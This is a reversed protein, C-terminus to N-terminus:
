NRVLYCLYDHNRDPRVSLQEIIFGTEELVNNFEQPQYYNYFQGRDNTEEGDGRKMVIIGIANPSLKNKISALTPRMETKSIHLLSAIALLGDFKNEISFDRCDACVFNGEPLNTKAIKLMSISNDLGIYTYGQDALIKAEIGSGCGIELIKGSPLYEHLINLENEWYNPTRHLHFNEATQDYYNKTYNENEARDM